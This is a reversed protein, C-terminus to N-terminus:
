VPAGAIRRTCLDNFAQQQAPGLPDSDHTLLWARGADPRGLVHLLLLQADIRELGAARAQQLAQQLTSM